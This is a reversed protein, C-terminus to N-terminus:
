KIRRKRSENILVLNEYSAIKYETYNRLGLLIRRKTDDIRREALAREQSAKVWKSKLGLFYKAMMQRKIEIIARACLYTINKDFTLRRKWINMSQKAATLSRTTQIYAISKREYKRKRLYKAFANFITLKLFLQHDSQIIKSKQYDRLRQLKMIVFFRRM